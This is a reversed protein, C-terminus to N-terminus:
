YITIQRKIKEIAMEIEFGSPEPVLPDATHLEAQGVYYV